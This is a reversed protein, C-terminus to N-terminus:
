YDLKMNLFTTVSELDDELDKIRSEQASSQEELETIREQLGEITSHLRTIEEQQGQRNNQGPQGSCSSFLISVVLLFLISFRTM